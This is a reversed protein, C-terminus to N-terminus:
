ATPDIVEGGNEKDKGNWEIWNIANTVMSRSTTKGSSNQTREPIFRVRVDTIQSADVKDESDVGNGMANSTYYFTGLGDLKTTRGNAMYLSLVDGLAQLVAYSDSPTATCRKSIEISIERTTVPKGVTVSVPYWKKNIKLQKKKFFPM